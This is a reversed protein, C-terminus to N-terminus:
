NPLLCSKNGDCDGDNGQVVDVGDLEVVPGMKLTLFLRFCKKKKSCCTDIKLFKIVHFISKQSPYRTANLFNSLWGPIKTLFQNKMNDFEEFKINARNELM